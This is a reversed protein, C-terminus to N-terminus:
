TERTTKELSGIRREHDELRGEHQICHTLRKRDSTMLQDLKESLEEIQAAIVALKAHAMFMWPGLALVLATAVGIVVTWEQVTM